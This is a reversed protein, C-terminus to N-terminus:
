MYKIFLSIALCLGFITNTQATAVMAPMLAKQESHRTFGRYAALAKPFSAFCALSWPSLIHAAILGLIWLYSCTFMVALFRTAGRRGLLIALTRRGHRQDDDLDRINNAMLIAGILVAVPVSVLLAESTVRGTQLFCSIAIIGTGMTLGAFLEGFPTASIPCPGGSYLYGVLACALGAPLLWWTTQSCLYLGLLLAAFIVGSATALVTAPTLGDRVISGSIGVSGAHDLGRKFDFYENFMNTAAQILISAALMAGFLYILVQGYPLSVATGLMVPVFAATLTHPRFMRWEIQSSTTKHAAHRHQSPIPTHLHM